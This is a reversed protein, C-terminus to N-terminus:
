ARASIDHEIKSVIKSVEELEKIQEDTLMYRTREIWYMRLKINDVIPLIRKILEIDTM